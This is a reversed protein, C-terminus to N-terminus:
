EGDFTSLVCECRLQPRMLVYKVKQGYRRQLRESRSMHFRETVLGYVDGGLNM